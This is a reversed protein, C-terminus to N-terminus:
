KGPKTPFYTIFLGSCSPSESTFPERKPTCGTTIYMGSDSEGINNRLPESHLKLGVSPKHANLKIYLSRNDGYFETGDNKKM